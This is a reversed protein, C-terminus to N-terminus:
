ASRTVLAVSTVTSREPTATSFITSTTVSPVAPVTSFHTRTPPDATVTAVSPSSVSTTITVLSSAPGNANPMFINPAVNIAGHPQPQSQCRGPGISFGASPLTQYLAVATYFVIISTEFLFILIILIAIPTPVTIGSRRSLPPISFTAFPPPPPPPPPPYSEIDQHQVFRTPEPQDAELEKNLHKEYIAKFNPEAPLSQESAMVTSSPSAAATDATKRTIDFMM